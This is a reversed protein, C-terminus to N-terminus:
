GINVWFKGLIYAPCGMLFLLDILGYAARAAGEPGRGPGYGTAGTAPTSPAPRRRKLHESRRRARGPRPEPPRVDVRDSSPGRARRGRRRRLRAGPSPNPLYGRRAGCHPRPQPAARRRYARPARRRHFAPPARRGGRARRGGLSAGRATGAASATGRAPDAGAAARRGVIGGRGGRSGARRAAGPVSVPRATSPLAPRAASSPAGGAGRYKPIRERERNQDPRRSGRARDPVASADERIPAGAVGDRSTRGRGLDKSAAGYINRRYVVARAPRARIPRSYDGPATPSWSKAAAPIAALSIDYDQLRRLLWSEDGYGPNLKPPKTRCRGPSSPRGELPRVREGPPRGRSGRTRRRPRRRRGHAGSAGRRSGRGRAPSRWSRWSTSGSRRPRRPRPSREIAAARDRPRSGSTAGTRLPETGTGRSRPPRIRTRLCRATASGARAARPRRPERLNGATASCWRRRRAYLKAPRTRPHVGSSGSGKLYKRPGDAGRYAAGSSATM